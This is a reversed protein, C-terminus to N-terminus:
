SLFDELIRTLEGSNEIAIGEELAKQDAEPLMKVPIPFVEVPQAQGDKWLAIRGGQIGLLFGLVLALARLHTTKM